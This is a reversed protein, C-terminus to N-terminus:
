AGLALWSSLTPLLETFLAIGLAILLVGAVQNALTLWRGRRRLLWSTWGTVFGAAIFPLMLGLAYAFLLLAGQGVSGSTGALVFVAGLVPGVCPTWGVAFAAGVLFSGAYRLSRAPSAQVGYGRQFFPVRLLGMSMLGMAIILVGSVRNLWTDFSTLVRSLAGLSAGLVIFVLTFGLAFLLTNLVAAARAQNARPAAGGAPADALTFGALYSVYGPVLALTCPALFSLVGAGFAALIGVNGTM